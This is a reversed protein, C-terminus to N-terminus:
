FMFVHFLYCTELQAIVYHLDTRWSMAIWESSIENNYNYLKGTWLQIRATCLSRNIECYVSHDAEDIGALSPKVM